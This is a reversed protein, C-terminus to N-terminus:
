WKRKPEHCVDGFLMKGAINIAVKTKNMDM